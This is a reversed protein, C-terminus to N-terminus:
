NFVDIEINRVCKISVGYVSSIFTFLLSWICCRRIDEFIIWMITNLMILTWLISINWETNNNHIEFGCVLADILLIYWFYFSLYCFFHCWCIYTVSHISTYKQAMNFFTHNFLDFISPMQQVPLLSSRSTNGSREVKM